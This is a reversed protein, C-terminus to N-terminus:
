QGLAAPREDGARPRVLHPPQPRAQRDHLAADARQPDPCPGTNLVTDGCFFAQKWQLQSTKAARLKIGQQRAAKDIARYRDGPMKVIQQSQPDFVRWVPEKESWQLRFVVLEDKRHDGGGQDNKYFKAETADHPDDSSDEIANWPAADGEITVGEDALAEVEARPMRRVHGVFRGDDLNRKTATPDWVTELPDIRDILVRGEPDEDYSMRTDTWGMGCVILDMFADSEEDEADCEDRVWKAAGTLLENVPSQGQQRPIFRVEQRNNVEYGAVSDIITGVRNFTLV